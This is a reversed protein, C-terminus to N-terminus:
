LTAIKLPAVVLCTPPKLARYVTFQIAIGTPINALANENSTCAPAACGPQCRHETLMGLKQSRGFLFELKEGILIIPTNGPIAILKGAGIATDFSALKGRIVEPGTVVRM